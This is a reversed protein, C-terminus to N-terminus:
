RRYLMLAPLEPFVKTGQAVPVVSTLTGPPLIYRIYLVEFFLQNAQIAQHRTEGLSSGSRARESTGNACIATIKRLDCLQNRRRDFM